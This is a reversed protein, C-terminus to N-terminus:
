GTEQSGVKNQQATRSLIQWGSPLRSALGWLLLLLNLMCLQESHLLSHRLATPTEHPFHPCSYRPNTKTNKTKHLKKMASKLIFAHAQKKTLVCQLLFIFTDGVSALNTREHQLPLKFLRSPQELSSVWWLPFSPLCIHTPCRMLQIGPLDPPSSPNGLQLHCCAEM